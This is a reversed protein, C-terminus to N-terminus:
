RVICSKGKKISQHFIDSNLEKGFRKNIRIFSGIISKTHINLEKIRLLESTTLPTGDVFHSFSASTINFKGFGNDKM